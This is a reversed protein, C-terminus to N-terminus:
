GQALTSRTSGYVRRRNNALASICMFATFRDGAIGSRRPFFFQRFWRLEHIWATRCYKRRAEAATRAKLMVGLAAEASEEFGELSLDGIAVFRHQGDFGFFQPPAGPASGVPLGRFLKASHCSMAYISLGVLIAGQSPSLLPQGGQALFVGDSPRGHGYFALLFVEGARLAAVLEGRNPNDFPVVDYLSVDRSLRKVQRRAWIALVREVDDGNKSFVM